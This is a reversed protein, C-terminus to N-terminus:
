EMELELNKEQAFKESTTLANRYKGRIARIRAARTEEWNQREGPLHPCRSLVSSTRVSEHIIPVAMSIPITTTAAASSAALMFAVTTVIAAATGTSSNRELRFTM